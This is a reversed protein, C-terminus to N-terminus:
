PEGPLAPTPSPPIRHHTGQEYAYGFQLLIGEDFPRGLFELGVPLRDSTFGAPVTLAPFQLAPSLARNSGVALGLDPHTLVDPPIKAPQHDFTAYVLANLRNDAMVKLVTRRLQECVQMSQLYARDDTTKGLAALLTARRPVSVKDSLTIYRLSDAPTNPHEALYRDIAQETEPSKIGFLWATRQLLGKLDPITVPDVVEAGLGKLDAISKDIVAKVKRYDESAPKTNGDMPERIVGIRAGKLGEKILFTTYSKPIRGVNYATVPDKPDYGAIVDLLIAADRVTRTMPGLTDMTPTWPMLGFRSVLPVSPKLGVLSSVAAPGRISGGTDEAIALVAYNAAIATGTGGSSGSPNRDPAYANRTVGFASGIYSHAYEGMTNKGLVIAGAQKIKTVVTADRQPIFDKFLASGYTTPMDSTEIEDKLVVPICHLPGVFGSKKFAEDLQAAQELARPNVNQMANLAPGKKDYAEIRNLYLQVVERCTTQGSRLAGHIDDITTELLHWGTPNDAASATGANQCFLLGGVAAGILFPLIIRLSVKLFNGSFDKIFERHM